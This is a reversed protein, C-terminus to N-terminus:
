CSPLAALLRVLVRALVTSRYRATSRVDDCPATDAAVSAAVADALGGPPLGEFLARELTTLRVTRDAVAGAAIRAATVVGGDAAIALAVVLKAISQARRTGVKRFARLERAPRPPVVIGEILEDPRRATARYGTVFDEVPLVRAGTASRLAVQAGLAFLVPVLDAAPSATGLNGGITARNQIQAAGVERAAIALLDAHATVAASHLLETCTTGAGLWLGDDVPRIGRLEPVAGVDVVLDPSTRGAALEVMLDTGGALVRSAATADRLAALAEDLSRASIVRM